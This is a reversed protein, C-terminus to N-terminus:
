YVKGSVIRPRYPREFRQSGLCAMGLWEFYAQVEEDWESRADDDLQQSAQELNLQPIKTDRIQRISSSVDQQVLEENLPTTDSDFTM